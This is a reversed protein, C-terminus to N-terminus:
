CFRSRSSSMRISFSVYASTHQVVALPQLVDPHQLQRISVYASTHQRISVYASTHQLVALPQLVDPHQLQLDVIQLALQVHELLLRGVDIHEAVFDVV